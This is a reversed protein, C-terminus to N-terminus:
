EPESGGSTPDSLRLCKRGSLLGDRWCGLRMAFDERDKCGSAVVAGNVVQIGPEVIVSRMHVSSLICVEVEFVRQRATEFYSEPKWSDM